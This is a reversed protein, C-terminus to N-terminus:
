EFRLAAIPDMMAAKRAPYIGFIIGVMASIGFSLVVSFLSIVTDWGAYWTIVKAMVAGLIIGIVGGTVSILVTENLFQGLIDEQTAGLARRVGIEKTRETVSALMINMIGIGGVILSIAAISGMVINFVRQTRQSQALLESPIIIEYDEVQNHLRQLIRKVVNSVAFVKDEEAVQIAIEDIFNPRDPDTFRKLGTSIPIYIDQNINRLKIVSAKKDLLDKPEMVGVITFWTDEIKLRHGLPDRYGFLQKRVDSGIVCVRKADAVDLATLFRGMQPHFNTVTEYLENTAIVRATAERTGLLAAAEVFRMPAVATMGNLNGRIYLADHYNLGPSLKAEAQEAMEGTLPRHKVRVNNTGLLKIQEVAARKAGEGISLMAIVAAVGFIIGLTTLLSRLKHVMVSRLGIQLNESYQM